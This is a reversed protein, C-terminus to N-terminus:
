YPQGQVTAAEYHYSSSQEHDSQSSSHAPQRRTRM